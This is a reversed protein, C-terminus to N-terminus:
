REKALPKSVQRVCDIFLQAAPSLTRNKLTVIGVPQPRVPLRIPLAKMSMRKGGFRLLSRPLIAFCPRMTLLAHYMEIANCIVTTRPLELGSAHFVEAVISGVDTDPQPLLWPEDLLDALSVKRRSLWPNGRGAVVFLPEDFLIEVNLDKDIRRSLLRGVMFDVTRQRVNDYVAPSTTMQSVHVTLRPYRRSMHDIVVPLLGAMMAVLAGVRVEGSTPEALFEIEKIGQRLEDFAIRGRNLIARGYPTPEVGQRSRDLLRVGLAHELDSITKSVVPQSVALEQAARAMSGREVVAMLISLDRLKLRRGIRDVLHMAREM